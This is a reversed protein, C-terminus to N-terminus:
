KIELRKTEPETKQKKPLDLTLIGNKYEAEIADANINSIDYSRQYSGFTRERCIYNGDKDKDEKETKHVASLTLRDGNIDINIDEKSFGPLEAELVFKDGKDCIDTRCSRLDASPQTNFFDKEFEHFVNFLDYTSREFPTLGNLM